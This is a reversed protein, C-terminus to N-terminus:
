FKDFIQDKTQDHPKRRDQSRKRRKFVKRHGIKNWTKREHRDRNIIDWWNWYIGTKSGPKEMKKGYRDRDNYTRSSGKTGKQRWRCICIGKEDIEDDVRRNGKKWLIELQHEEYSQTQDAAVDVVEEVQGCAGVRSWSSPLLSFVKPWKEVLEVLNAAHAGWRQRASHKGKDKQSKKATDAQDDNLLSFEWAIWPCNDTESFWNQRRLCRPHDGLLSFVNTPEPPILEIM